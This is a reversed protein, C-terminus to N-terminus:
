RSRTTTRTKHFTQPPETTSDSDHDTSDNGDDDGNSDSGSDNDGDDDNSSYGNDNGKECTLLFLFFPNSMRCTRSREVLNM